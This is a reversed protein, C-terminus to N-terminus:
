RHFRFNPIEGSQTTITAVILANFYWPPALLSFTANSSVRVSLRSVAYMCIMSIVTFIVMYLGSRFLLDANQSKVGTLADGFLDIIEM